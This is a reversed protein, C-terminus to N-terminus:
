ALRDTSEVDEGFAAGLRVGGPIGGGTALTLQTLPPLETLRPTEWVDDTATPQPTPDDHESRAHDAM